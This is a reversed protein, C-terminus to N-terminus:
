SCRGDPTIRGAGSRGRDSMGDGAAAQTSLIVMPSRASFGPLVRLSKGDSIFLRFAPTWGDSGRHRVPCHIIKVYRKKV